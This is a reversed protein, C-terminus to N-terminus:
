RFSRRSHSDVEFQDVLQEGLALPRSVEQVFGPEDFLEGRTQDLAGEPDFQGIM